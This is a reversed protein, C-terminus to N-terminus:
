SYAFCSWSYTFFSGGVSFHAERASCGADRKTNRARHGDVSHSVLRACFDSFFPFSFPFHGGAQFPRFIAASISFISFFHGLDWKPAMKGNRHGNKPWKLGPAEGNEKGNKESKQALGTEWETSPWRARLSLPWLAWIGRDCPGEASTLGPCRPGDRYAEWLLLIAGKRGVQSPSPINPANCGYCRRDCPSPGRLCPLPWCFSPQDYRDVLTRLTTM